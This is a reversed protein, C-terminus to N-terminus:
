FRRLLRELYKREEDPLDPNSLRERLSRTLERIRAPDSLDPIEIGTDGSSQYIRGLPDREASQGSLSGNEAAQGQRAANGQAEELAQEALGRAGQQLLSLAEEQAFGATTLDGRELAASAREMMRAAESFSQSGDIDNLGSTEQLQRAAEALARQDSGLGNDSRDGRRASFTEDALRRQQDILDGVDGLAGGSNEGESGEGTESTSSGSQTENGSGGSSQSIRMNQLLQELEALRRRAEESDGQRRLRAIEDLIDNLDQGEILENDSDEEALAEGSAALAALYDSTARRLEEVLRDIEEPPAGNELAERLAEQAAELRQRALNLGEDELAIALPWFNDVLASTNQGQGEELQHYATRLLIYEKADKAFIEPSLTLANFLRLSRAWSGPALALQQRQEIVVRSLPNYFTREPLILSRSLSTATQGAGDTIEVQLTVPLGAWPHETLDLAVIRTGADGRLASADIREPPTPGEPRPKDPPFDLNRSLRLIVTGSEVGYDDTINLTLLTRVGGEVVPEGIISVVPIEDPIIEFNFSLRDRGVKIKATGDSILERAFFGRTMTDDQSASLGSGGVNVAPTSGNAGTARIQLTSGEAIVYTDSIREPLKENRAIFAPPLRTYDPPEIWVDVLVPQREFVSPTMANLLREKVNPGAIILGTVLLLAAPLRFAYPDAKDVLARPPAHRLSMIKRSLERRHQQWLPNQIEAEFPVDLCDALYGQPLQSDTELRHRIDQSSPSRIFREALIVALFLGGLALLCLILHGWAPIVEFLGFLALGFFLAIVIFIPTLGAYLREWLMTFRTRFLAFSLRRSQM